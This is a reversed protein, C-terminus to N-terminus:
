QTTQRGSVQQANDVPKQSIIAEIVQEIIQLQYPSAKALLQAILRYRESVPPAKLWGAAEYIWYPETELAVALAQVFDPDGLPPLAPDDKREWHAVSSDVYTYAPNIARIREALQKQTLDCAKRRERIFQALNPSTKM